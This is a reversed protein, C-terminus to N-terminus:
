EAALTAVTEIEAHGFNQRRVGYWYLASAAAFTAVARYLGGIVLKAPFPPLLATGVSLEGHHGDDSFHLEQFGGLVCAIAIGAFIWAAPM